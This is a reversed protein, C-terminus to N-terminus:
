GKPVYVTEGAYILNPGRKKITAKASATHPSDTYNYVWLANGGAKYGHAAAISSFTDGSKVTVALPASSTSGGGTSTTAKATTKTTTASAAGAQAPQAQVKFYYLTNPKLGGVSTSTAPSSVTTSGDSAASTTGHSVTYSRANTTSNWKLGVTTSSVSTVTLGTPPNTAYVTGGPPTVIPSSPTGPTPPSPPAGLRQIALNVDAQQDTTLNQSALYQEIAANAATADVGISVLYNIAANAWADNDQYQGATTSGSSDSSGTSTSTSSGLAAQDESSGYVYGTAPDITGTNGAPDTQTATATTGKGKQLYWFIAVAAIGWVWVPLPGLKKTLLESAGKGAHTAAQEEAM